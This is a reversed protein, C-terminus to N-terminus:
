FFAVKHVGQNPVEVEMVGLSHRKRLAARAFEYVGKRSASDVHHLAQLGGSLPGKLSEEPAWHACHWTHSVLSQLKLTSSGPISGVHPAQSPLVPRASLHQWHLLEWPVRISRPGPGQRPYSFCGSNSPTQGLWPPVGLIVTSPDEPAAPGSGECQVHPFSPPSSRLLFPSATIVGSCVPLTPILFAKGLQPETTKTCVNCTQGWALHHTSYLCSICKEKSANVIWNPLSM